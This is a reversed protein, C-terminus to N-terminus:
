EMWSEYIWVPTTEGTLRVKAYGLLTTEELTFSAGNHIRILKGEQFMRALATEDKGVMDLGRSLDDKDVAGFCKVKASYTNGVTFTPGSPRSCGVFIAVALFVFSPLAVYARLGEVNNGM